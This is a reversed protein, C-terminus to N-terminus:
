RLLMFSGKLFVDGKEDSGKITYVYVGAPSDTGKYQGNWGKTIDETKFVANGWRDYIVFAKLKLSVGPPIRYVENLGDDNPTFANPMYLKHQVAIILKKSAECGNAGTVHLQYVTTTHVPMTIPTLSQPNQLNSAPTWVYNLVDPSVAATLQLQTGAAVVTDAPHFTVVPEQRVAITVTNSTTVVALACGTNQTSLVCAVKDGDVPQNLTYAPGNGSVNRGNVQWQYSPANGAQQATATFIIPKAGCTNNESAAISVTTPPVDKVSVTVVNSVAAMAAACKATPDVSVTCSVKDGDTLADTVFVPGNSGVNVGNIKWQYAPAAGSQVAEAKFSVALGKCVSTSATSVTVAPSLAPYVTITIPDSYDKTSGTPCQPVTMRCQVVDGDMLVNTSFVTSNTGLDKGNVTWQYVPSRSNSKNTATFTVPTGPCIAVASAAVTVEPTVDNTSQMTIRNSSVTVTGNCATNTTLECVIVDNTTFTGTYANSNAGVPQGNKKWRYAPTAGADTVSATFTVTPSVCIDTGSATITISPHTAANVTIAVADSVTTANVACAASSTMVCRVADGNNLAANTYTRSNTGVNGGNLQWQYSPSAGGNTPTATFVVTRGECITTASAAVSVSPTLAGVALTAPFSYVTGCANSVACRYVYGNLAATAATLNLAETASGSYTDGETINNWGAGTNVQWQFGTANDAKVVFSTNGSNCLSVDLPQQNVTVALCTNVKRVVNYWNNTAIYANGVNDFAIGHPETIKAATAPGGDGSFGFSGNGAFTTIIGAPTIKRIVVNGADSVYLNGAADVVCLNPYRLSAGTAQGGDGGYRGVGDGAYTSIIGAPDIKRIRNNLHDPIYINGANDLAVSYPRNFQAATAPGGDGSFGKTGNGAITTVIGAPNVKRIVHYEGDSIYLNGANDVHLGSFSGFRAMALPGGDGSYGQPQKGAVTTIIGAADIKRIVAANQDAFFINGYKDMAINNPHYLQANIAPGGDGSYGLTANGAFNSIIGASNVRRIVNNGLDAIYVNGAADVAVSSPDNLQAAAAPGGNGSYGLPGTGAFTSIIQAKSKHACFLLLLSVFLLRKM